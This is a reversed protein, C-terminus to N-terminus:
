KTRGDHYWVQGDFKWRCDGHHGKAPRLTGDYWICINRITSFEDLVILEANRGMMTTIVTYDGDKEGSDVGLHVPKHLPHHRYLYHFHNHSVGKTLWEKQFLRPEFGKM